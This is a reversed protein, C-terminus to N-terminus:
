SEEAIVRARDTTFSDGTVIGKARAILSPEIEYHLTRMRDVIDDIARLAESVKCVRVQDIAYVDPGAFQKVRGIINEPDEFTKFGTAEALRVWDARMEAMQNIADKLDVPDELRGWWPDMPKPTEQTVDDNLSQETRAQMLNYDLLDAGIDSAERSKIGELYSLQKALRRVRRASYNPFDALLKVITSM